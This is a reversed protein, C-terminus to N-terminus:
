KELHRFAPLYAADKPKEYYGEPLEPNLEFSLLTYIRGESTLKHPLFLGSRERYDGYKFVTHDRSGDARLRGWERAQKVLHTRRDIWLDVLLTKMEPHLIRVVDCMAADIVEESLWVAPLDSTVLLVVINQFRRREEQVDSGRYALPGSGIDGTCWPWQGDYGCHRISASGIRKSRHKRSQLSITYEKDWTLKNRTSVIRELCRFDSVTGFDALVIRERCEALLAKAKATDDHSANHGAGIGLVAFALFFYLASPLFVYKGLFAGRM